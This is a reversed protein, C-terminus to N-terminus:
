HKRGRRAGVPTTISYDPSQLDAVIQTPDIAPSKEVLAPRKRTQSGSSARRESVSESEVVVAPAPTRRASAQSEPAVERHFIVPRVISYREVARQLTAMDVRVVGQVRESQADGDTPPDVRKM